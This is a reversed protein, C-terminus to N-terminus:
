CFFASFFSSSSDDAEQCGPAEYTNPRSFRAFFEKTFENATNPLVTPVFRVAEGHRTQDNMSSPPM